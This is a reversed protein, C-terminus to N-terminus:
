PPKPIGQPREALVVPRKPRWQKKKKKVIHIRGWEEERSKQKLIVKPKKGGKKGEKLWESQERDPLRPWKAEANGNTKLVVRRGKGEDVSSGEVVPVEWEEDDEEWWDGDDADWKEEKETEWEEKEMAEQYTSYEESIGGHQETKAARRKPLPTLCVM